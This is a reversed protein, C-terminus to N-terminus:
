KDDGALFLQIEKSFKIMFIALVGLILYFNHTFFGYSLLILGFFSILFELHEDFTVDYRIFYGSLQAIGVVPLLLIASFVGLINMFFDFLVSYLEM